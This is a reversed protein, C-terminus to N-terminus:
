SVLSKVWVKFENYKSWRPSDTSFEGKNQARTKWAASQVEEFQEILALVDPQKNEPPPVIELKPKGIGIATLQKELDPSDLCFQHLDSRNLEGNDIKRAISVVLDAIAEPIRVATTKGTKWKPMFTPNGVPKIIKEDSLATM